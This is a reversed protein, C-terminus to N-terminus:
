PLWLSDPEWGAASLSGLLSGLLLGQIDARTLDGEHVWDLCVGDLYWLWGRVATRLQPSPAGAPSIRALMKRATEERVARATDRDAAFATDGDARLLAVIRAGVQGYGGLVLARVM